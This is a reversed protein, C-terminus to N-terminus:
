RRPPPRIQRPSNCTSSSGCHMRIPLFRHAPPNDAAIPEALKAAQDLSGQAAFAMARLLVAEESGRDCPGELTELADAPRGAALQARALLLGIENKESAPAKRLAERLPAIAAQPLGDRLAAEAKEVVATSAQVAALLALWLFAAIKM